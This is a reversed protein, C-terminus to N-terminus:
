YVLIEDIFLWSDGGKPAEGLNDMFVKIYRAKTPAFDFNFDVLKAFGDAQYPRSFKGVSIYDKGNESVWVQGGIPFYIGSGQNEMSGVKIQHIEKVEGLDMTMTVDDTLWAQWQGDHFDLTGRNINVMTKEKQGTYNKHAEPKYSVKANKARHLEIKKTFIKGILQNNKFLGAHIVTTSNIKIPKTYKIGNEKLNSDNITYRIDKEGPFENELVVQIDNADDSIIAKGTVDYISKAYNIGLLEWRKLLNLTRRYFDTKNRTSKPSWGVEAMAFLRPYLMYESHEITPIYETWLNAQPGLIHKAEKENLEEPIPEFEYVKNLTKYGGIALPETEPLGQYADLYAYEGPTMVVDHGSKAAEIGGQTGRWSMVTAQPALGGELIEDWGILKRGHANLFKEIRKIFYSQLEEVNNIGIEKMRKKTTECTEWKTKTAEDGGIHIYTSPFLAMVETLVDELFKFTSEKGPDYIDVIPWIGGSPVSIQEETCSLWPYAAVASSVHAPMEIEPVINIGLKSAHDVIEKIDEQTYFGGYTAKEGNKQEPRTNWHLNEHDVRWAGIETLKPYKKIEIRWGQDDILHWHFTNMKLMAMRDLTKLIYDKPFFHRSVDLMLGRWAFRPEDKIELAPITWKLNQKSNKEIENPLLQRISAIAHIFGTNSSAEISIGKPSINLNYAEPKLSANNKLYIFNKSPKINTSKLIFGSSKSFITQLQKVADEQKKETFYISTKPNINFNGKKIEIKKPIPIINIKANQGSVFFGILLLISAIHTRM